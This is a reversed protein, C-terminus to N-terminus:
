EIVDISAVFIDTDSITFTVNHNALSLGYVRSPDSHFAPRPDMRLVEEIMSQLSPQILHQEEIRQKARDSFTIPQNLPHPKGMEPYTAEQICDAYPIYPKIDIIPTGDVLDAGSVHLTVGRATAIVQELKVASLGLANPRHTSRTAFVGRKENGGLRPPRTLPRWGAQITHSFQFILWIHSCEELGRVTDPDNFPEKLTVLSLASPVLGPQRPAGFKELFPTTIYGIPEIHTMLFEDKNIESVM